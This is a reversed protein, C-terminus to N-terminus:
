VFRIISNERIWGAFDVEQMEGNAVALMTQIADMQNAILERM